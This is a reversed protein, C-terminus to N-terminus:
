TDVVTRRSGLIAAHASGVGTAAVRCACGTHAGEVREATVRRPVAYTHAFGVHFTVRLASARATANQGIAHVGDVTRNSAWVPRTHILTIRVGVGCRGKKSFGQQCAQGVVGAEIGQGRLLEVSAERQIAGRFRIRAGCRRNDLITAHTARVWPAAVGQAFVTNAGRVGEAAVRGPVRDAHFLGACFANVTTSTGCRAITARRRRRRSANNGSAFGANARGIGEATFGRPIVQTDLCRFCRTTAFAVTDNAIQGTHLRDIAAKCTGRAVGRTHVRTQRLGGTM